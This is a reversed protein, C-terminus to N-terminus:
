CGAARSLPAVAAPAIGALPGPNLWAGLRDRLGQPGIVELRGSDCAETLSVDGRYLHTMDRLSAALYLDVAHGPDALCLEAAGGENVFWARARADAQDTFHLEVVVRAPGFAAGDVCHELGWLSLGHDIEGEEPARRTWRRGWKGLAMVLPVFEAGAESLAYHWHQGTESRTRTVIGERELENLRRSLLTASMLPMGRHIANFRHAGAAISRLVLATWRECFLEAAKAVPCFQGYSKM